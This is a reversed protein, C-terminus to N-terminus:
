MVLRYTLSVNRGANPAYDKARSTADRTLQDGMNEVRLMLANIATGSGWRLGAFMDVRSFGDTRLEGPAVLGQRAHGRVSGGVQFRRNDWRLNTGLRAAPMFPLAEGARDRSRLADAVLGVVLHEHWVQELEVEVGTLRAPRQSVVFLPLSRLSGGITVATDRGAPYMGIWGRVQSHYAAVQLRRTPRDLRWVLDAGHTVEPDLQTNGIEFAGTGAHGARSLLEEASPARTARAVNASLSGAGRAAFVIGASASWGPFRRVMAKGFYETPLSAVRSQEYRVALPFRVQPGVTVEQFAVIGVQEIDNPPTLAQPGTVGNTRDLWNFGIAGSRFPGAGKTTGIVQVQRTELGLTTAVEGGTQIEDHAYRQWTGDVRLQALPGVGARVARGSVEDRAGRLRVGSVPDERFPLGYEFSYRRWAVGVSGVDGVFGLGTVLSQNRGSTNALQDGTALGMDDHSRGSGKLTLAVRRGMPQVLELRTAVSRTASEVGTVVTTMRQEPVLTPIDDSIVNVVGGLANSGYLLAAPGRVVEISRASHPDITVGHDPASSALDGARQGDQLIVIRDGTLGRIIPMAASPGQSRVTIGAQHALTGALTGALSRDLDRADMVTVPVAVEGVGRTTPVATVTVGALSLVTSRLIVQHRVTDGVTAVLTLSQPAYGLSAVVVDHRDAPLRLLVRGDAGTQRALRIAAVEVRAGRVPAGGDGVVQLVAYGSRQAGALVPQSLLLAFVLRGLPTGLM